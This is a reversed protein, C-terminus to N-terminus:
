TKLEDVVKYLFAVISRFLVMLASWERTQCVQTCAIRRPLFTRRQLPALTYCLSTCTWGLACKRTMNSKNKQRAHKQSALASANRAYPVANIPTTSELMHLVLLLLWHWVLSRAVKHNIKHNSLRDLFGDSCMTSKQFLGMIASVIVRTPTHRDQEMIWCYSM